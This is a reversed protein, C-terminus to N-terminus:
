PRCTPCVTRFGDAAFLAPKGEADLHVSLWEWVPRGCRDCVLREGGSRGCLDCRGEADDFTDVQCFPCTLVDKGAAALREGVTRAHERLYSSIRRLDGLLGRGRLQGMLDIGLHQSDLEFVVALIRGVVAEAQEVSIEFEYHEIQNRLQRAATIAQQQQETLSINAITSLRKIAEDSGVTNADARGYSEVKVWILSAHERRLCEKLLLEAAHVADRVARKLDGVERTGEKGTLHRVAHVLSDEANAVLDFRVAGSDDMPGVGLAGQDPHERRAM